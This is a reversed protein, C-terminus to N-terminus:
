RALLMDVVKEAAEKKRPFAALAIKLHFCSGGDTLLVDDRLLHAKDLRLYFFLGDDIRSSKQRRLLEKDSSSLITSLHTFFYKLHKQKLIVLELIIIKKENFGAAVTRTLTVLEKKETPAFCDEPLGSLKKLATAIAQESEGEHVFISRKANTPDQMVNPFDLYKFLKARHLPNHLMRQM